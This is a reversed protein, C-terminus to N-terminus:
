ANVPGSPGTGNRANTDARWKEDLRARVWSACWSVIERGDDTLMSGVQVSAVHELYEAIDERYTELKQHAEARSKDQEGYLRGFERTNSDREAAAANACINANAVAVLLHKKDAELEAIRAELARRQQTM